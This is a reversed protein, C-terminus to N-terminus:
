RETTKSCPFAGTSMKYSASHVGPGTQVCLFSSFDGGPIQEPGDLCTALRRAAQAVQGLASYINSRSFLFCVFNWILQDM